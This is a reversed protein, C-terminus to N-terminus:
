GSGQATTIYLPKGNEDKLSVGFRDMGLMNRFKQNVNYGWNNNQQNPYKGFTKKTNVFSSTDHTFLVSKGEAIFAEITLASLMQCIM